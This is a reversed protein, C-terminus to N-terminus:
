ATAERRTEMSIYWWEQHHAMRSEFGILGKDQFAKLTKKCWAPREDNGTQAILSVSRFSARRPSTRCCYLLQVYFWKQDDDLDDRTFLWLPVAINM